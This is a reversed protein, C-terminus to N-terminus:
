MPVRLFICNKTPFFGVVPDPEGPHLQLGFDMWPLQSSVVSLVALLITM